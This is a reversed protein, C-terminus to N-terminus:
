PRGPLGPPGSGGAPAPTAGGGPRDAPAPERLRDLEHRLVPAIPGNDAPATHAYAKREKEYRNRDAKAAAATKVAIAAQAQRMAEARKAKEANANAIGQLETAQVELAGERKLTGAIWSAGLVALFLAGAIAIGKWPLSGFLLGLPM